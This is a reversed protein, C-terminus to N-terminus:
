RGYHEPGLEYDTLSQTRSSRGFVDSQSRRLPVALAEELLSVDRVIGNVTRREALIRQEFYLNQVRRYIDQLRSVEYSRDPYGTVRERVLTIARSDSDYLDAIKQVDASIKRISM